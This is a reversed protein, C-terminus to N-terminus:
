DISREADQVEAPNSDRVVYRVQVSRGLIGTVTRQITTNLRNELWDKAYPSQVDVVLVNDALSVARSARVWTDFTARTMQLYLEGQVAHWLDAAGDDDGQKPLPTGIPADDTVPQEAFESSEDALDDPPEATPDERLRYIALGAPNSYDQRAHKSAWAIWRVWQTALEPVVTQSLLRLSEGGIGAKAFIVRAANSTTTQHEIEGPQNPVTGVGVGPSIEENPALPKKWSASNDQKQRISSAGASDAAPPIPSRMNRKNSGFWAYAAPRYINTGDPEKGDRDIFRHAPDELFHIASVVTSRNYGVENSITTLSAGPKDEAEHLAICIFVHLRAGKLMQLAGKKFSALIKIHSEETKVAQGFENYGIERSKHIIINSM